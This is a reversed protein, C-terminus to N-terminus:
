AAAAYLKAARAERPRMLYRWRSRFSVVLLQTDALFWLGSISTRHEARQAGVSVDVRLNWGPLTFDWRDDGLAISVAEDGRVGPAVNRPVSAAPTCGRVLADFEPGTPPREATWGQAKVRESMQWPLSRAVPGWAAPVPSDTWARIPEAPDELNPLAGGEACEEDGYVGIGDPNLPHEIPEGHTESRGGFAHTWDLEMATFPVPSSAVLAGGASRVWRRDGIVDIRRTFDGVTFSAHTRATPRECRARGLVVLDCGRHMPHNDSPFTGYRTNVKEHFVPWRVETPILRGRARDVQFTARAVLWAGIQQEDIAGTFLRAEWNTDNMFEM